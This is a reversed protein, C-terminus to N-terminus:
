AREADDSSIDHVLSHVEEVLDWDFVQHGRAFSKLSVGAHEDVRDAHCVEPQRCQDCYRIVLMPTLDLPEPQTLVYFTDNMVPHDVVLTATDFEPHDGMARRVRVNWRKDQRRLAVSEVLAWQAGVLFDVQEVAQLVTPALEASRVAAEARNHPRAGHASKNREALIVKLVELTGSQGKRSRVGEVFGPLAASSSAMAKEASKTVAHWHGQSVGRLLYQDHLMRLAPDQPAHQRLWSTSLMGLTVTLAEGLDLLHQYQELSDQTTQVARAARAVPYPMEKRARELVYSDMLEAGTFSTLPVAPTSPQTRRTPSTARPQDKSVSVPPRVESQPTPQERDRDRRTRSASARSKVSQVARRLAAVPWGILFFGTLGVGLADFWVPSTSGEIPDVFTAVALATAWAAAHWFAWDKVVPRRFVGLRYNKESVTV